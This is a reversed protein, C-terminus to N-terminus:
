IEKLILTDQCLRVFRICLKKQSTSMSFVEYVSISLSVCLLLIETFKLKNILNLSLYTGLSQIRIAVNLHSLVFLVTINNKIIFYINYCNKYHRNYNQWFTTAMLDCTLSIFIINPNRVRIFSFFNCLFCWLLLNYSSLM